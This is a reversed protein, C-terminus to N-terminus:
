APLVAILISKELMEGLCRSFADRMALPATDILSARSQATLLSKLLGYLPRSLKSVEVAKGPAVSPHFVLFEEVVAEAAELFKTRKFERLCDSVAPALVALHACPHLRLWAGATVVPKKRRQERLNEAVTNEYCEFAAISKEIPSLRSSQTLALAFDRAESSPSPVGSLPTAILHGLWEEEFRTGLMALSAPLLATLHKRRRAAVMGAVMAFREGGGSQLEFLWARVQVQPTFPLGDLSGAAYRRAAEENTALVGLARQFELALADPQVDGLM